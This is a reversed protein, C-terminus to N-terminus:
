RSWKACSAYLYNSVVDTWGVLAKNLLLM